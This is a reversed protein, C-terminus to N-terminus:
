ACRVSSFRSTSGSFTAFATNTSHVLSRLWVVPSWMGTSAPTAAANRRHASEGTARGVTPTGFSPMWVGSARPHGYRRPLYGRIGENPDGLRPQRHRACNRRDIEARRAAPDHEAIHPVVLDDQTGDRPERVNRHADDIPQVPVDELEVAAREGSQPAGDAFLRGQPAHCHVGPRDVIRKQAAIPHHARGVVVPVVAVDGGGVGHVSHDGRGLEIARVPQLVEREVREVLQPRLPLVTRQIVRVREQEYGVQQVEPQGPALGGLAGVGRRGPQQVDGGAVPVIHQDIPEPKGVTDEGLEHIGAVRDARQQRIDGCPQSGWGAEDDGGGPRVVGRGRNDGDGRRAFGEGVDRAPGPAEDTDLQAGGYEGLLATERVEGVLAADIPADPEQVVNHTQPQQALGDALPLPISARDVQRREQLLRRCQVIRRCQPM